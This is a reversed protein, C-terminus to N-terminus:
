DKLCGPEDIPTANALAPELLQAGSNIVQQNREELVKERENGRTSSTEDFGEEREWVHRGQRHFGCGELQGRLLPAVKQSELWVALKSPRVHSRALVVSADVVREDGPADGEAVPQALQLEGHGLLMAQGERLERENEPDELAQLRSEPGQQLLAKRSLHHRHAEVRQLKVELNPRLHDPGRIVKRVPVLGGLALDVNELKPSRLPGLFM